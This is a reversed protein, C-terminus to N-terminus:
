NPFDLRVAHLCAAYVLPKVWDAYSHTAPKFTNLHSIHKHKCKGPPFVSKKLLVFRQQRKSASITGPESVALFLLSLYARFAIQIELVAKVM